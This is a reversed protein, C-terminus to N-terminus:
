RAGRPPAGGGRPGAGLGALLAGRPGFASLAGAKILVELARRNLRAPDLRAALEALGSFPGRAAREREIEEALARGVGKIAGLGFRIAREGVVEFRYGSRNVDPPEVTLGLSRAEAVLTMVADSDDMEASLVAAM